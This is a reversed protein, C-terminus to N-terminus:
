GRDADTQTPPRTSTAATQDASSLPPGDTTSVPGSLRGDVGRTPQRWMWWAVAACCLAPLWKLRPLSWAASASGLAMMVWAFQKARWPIAHHERWDLVMPGFRPHGLLWAECRSSARAFCAAALLVFPTTPLLPLFIGIIGLALSLAGGLLWPIRRWRSPHRM